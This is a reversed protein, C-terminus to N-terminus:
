WGASKLWYNEKINKPPPLEDLREMGWFLVRATRFVCFIRLPVVFFWPFNEV